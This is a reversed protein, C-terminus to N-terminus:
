LDCSIALKYALCFECEVEHAGFDVWSDVKAQDVFTVGSLETDRRTKAIYRAIANSEFLVDGNATQLVPCKGLPSLAAASEDFDAVNVEIGNYEAAILAKFARFNGAVFLPFLIPLYFCLSFHLLSWRPLFSNLCYLAHV